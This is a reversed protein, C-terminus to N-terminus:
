HAATGLCRRRFASMLNRPLLPLVGTGACIHAPGPVSTPPDRRLHPCPHTPPSRRHRRRRRFRLACGRTGACSLPIPACSLPIPACSLPIPACSLPIPACGRTGAAHSVRPQTREHSDMRTRTRTCGDFTCMCMRPPLAQALLQACLRILQENASVQVSSLLQACVVSEVPLVPRTCGQVALTAARAEGKTYCLPLPSAPLPMWGRSDIPARVRM